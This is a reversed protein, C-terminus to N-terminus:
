GGMWRHIWGDMHIDKDMWANMQERGRGGMQKGVWGDVWRSM